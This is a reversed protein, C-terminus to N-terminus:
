ACTSVQGRWSCTRPFPRRQPSAGDAQWQRSAHQFYSRFSTPSLQLDMYRTTRVLQVVFGDSVGSQVHFEPGGAICRVRAYGEGRIGRRLGQQEGADISKRRNNRSGVVSWDGQGDDEPVAATAVANSGKAKGPGVGAAPGVAAGGSPMDLSNRGRRQGQDVSKRVPKAGAQGQGQGQAQHQAPRPVDLSNRASGGRRHGQNGHHNGHQHHQHGYHHNHLADLGFKRPESYWGYKFYGAPSPSNTNRGMRCVWGM